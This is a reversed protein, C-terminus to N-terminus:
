LAGGALKEYRTVLKEAASYIDYDSFAEPDVDNRQGPEVSCIKEAWLRPSTIPLFCVRGTVNAEQTITESLYCPLGARQAEISVLSLGEYFSPLAFVDFAQYLREVDNRQGLFLVQTELGFQSIWNKIMMEKDGSGVLILVANNRYKVVECFTDILFRHNKMSAFRGVHGIVLQNDSFGLEARVQNRVETSFAFRSLDVANYIVDFQAKKGFLWEGAFRCCAFRHTPYRNAQTKLIAKVANRVPEGKGAMSHSHAIRIKVGAKKAAHLPFVSLSNIHSHVIPWAEKKFLSTLVKQYLLIHQYPPVEFVRGGFSEIEDQPVLTSDADVLFDFQVKSHDIHRYYNMVVQEVGGGVMKGMIHAIRIPKAM